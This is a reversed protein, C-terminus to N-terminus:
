KVSEGMGGERLGSDLQGGGQTADPSMHCKERGQKRKERSGGAVRKTDGEMDGQGLNQGLFEWLGLDRNSCRQGSACIECGISPLDCSPGETTGAPYVSGLRDGHGRHTKDNRSLFPGANECKTDEETFTHM